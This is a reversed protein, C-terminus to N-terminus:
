VLPLHVPAAFIAPHDGMNMLRGGAYSFSTTQSSPKFAYIGVSLFGPGGPIPAGLLPSSTAFLIGFIALAFIIEWLKRKSILM